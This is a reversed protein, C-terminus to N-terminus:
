YKGMSTDVILIHLFNLKKFNKDPFWWMAFIIKEPRAFHHFKICCSYYRYSMLDWGFIWMELCSSGGVQFNPLDSIPDKLGAAPQTYITEAMWGIVQPNFDSWYM